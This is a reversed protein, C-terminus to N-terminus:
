KEQTANQTQTQAIIQDVVASVKKKSVKEDSIVMGGTEIITDSYRDLDGSAIVYPNLKDRSARRDQSEYEEPLHLSVVKQRDFNKFINEIEAREQEPTYPIASKYTEPTIFFIRSLKEFKKFEDDLVVPMGGGLDLIVPANIKNVIDKMIEIEFYKAYLSWAVNPNLGASKAKEIIQYEIRPSFGLDEYSVLGPFMTRLVKRKESVAVFHEGDNIKDQIDVIKQGIPKQKEEDEESQYQEILKYLYQKEGIIDLEVSHQLTEIEEITRPCHRLTDLQVWPLGTKKALEKGVLSKGVGMPGCLVITEKLAKKNM